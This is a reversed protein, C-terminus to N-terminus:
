RERDVKHRSVMSRRGQVKGGREGVWERSIFWWTIELPTGMLGDTSKECSSKFALLLQFSTNLTMFPLSWM